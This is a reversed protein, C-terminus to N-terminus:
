YSLIYGQGKRYQSPSIGTHKKFSNSFYYLNEFGCRAAIQSISYTTSTLLRKAKNVRECLIFQGPSTGFERNFRFNLTSANTGVARCIDEILIQKNINSIIYEAALAVLKDSCMHKQPLTDTPFQEYYIQFLIDMLLHERYGASLRDNYAICKELASVSSDFRPKDKPTVKGHTIDFSYPCQPNNAFKIYVFEIPKLVNRHFYIYDPLIVCDGAKIEETQGNIEIAPFFTDASLYACPAIRTIGGLM